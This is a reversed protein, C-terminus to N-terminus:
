KTNNHRERAGSRKRWAGHEGTQQKKKKTRHTLCHILRGAQLRAFADRALWGALSCALLSCLIRAQWNGNCRAQRPPAPNRLLAYRALTNRPERHLYINLVTTPTPRTDNYDGRQQHQKQASIRQMHQLMYISPLQPSTICRTTHAQDSLVSSRALADPSERPGGGAFALRLSSRSESFARVRSYISLRECRAFMVVMLLLPCVM